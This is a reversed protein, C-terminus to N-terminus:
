SKSMVPEATSSEARRAALEAQIQRLQAETLPYCAMVAAAVFAVVGPILSM